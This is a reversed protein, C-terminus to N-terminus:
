LFSGLNCLSFGYVHWDKVNTFSFIKTTMNTQRFVYGLICSPANTASNSYLESNFTLQTNSDNDVVKYSREFTASSWVLSYICLQYYNGQTLGSFTLTFTISGAILGFFKASETDTLFQPQTSGVYAAGVISSLLWGAGSNNTMNMNTFTSVGNITTATASNVNILSTYTGIGPSLFCSLINDGTWRYPVFDFLDNPQQKLVWCTNPLDFLMDVSQRPHLQYWLGRLFGGSSNVKHSLIIPTGSNLSNYITLPQWASLTGSYPINLLGLSGGSINLLSTSSTVTPAIGSSNISGLVVGGSINVGCGSFTTPSRMTLSTAGALMQLGNCGVYSNLGSASGYFIVRDSTTEVPGAPNTSSELYFDRTDKVVLWPDNNTLRLDTGAVLQFATIRGSSNLNNSADTSLLKSASATGATIGAARNLEASTATIAVGSVTLGTAELTGITLTSAVGGTTDVISGSPQNTLNQLIKVRGSDSADRFISFYRSAGSSFYTGYQGLDVTDAVTNGTGIAVLPDQVALNTTNIFTSSGNATFNQCIIDGVFTAGSTTVITGSLNTLFTLQSPTIYQRSGAPTLNLTNQTLFWNDAASVDFASTTDNLFSDVGM